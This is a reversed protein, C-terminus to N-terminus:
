IEKRIEYYDEESGCLEESLIDIMAPITLWSDATAEMPMEGNAIFLTNFLVFEIEKGDENYLDKGHFLYNELGESKAGVRLYEKLTASPNVETMGYIAKLLSIGTTRVDLSVMPFRRIMAKHIKKEPVEVIFDKYEPVDNMSANESYGLFREPSWIKIYYSNTDTLNGSEDSECESATSDFTVSTATNSAISFFRGDGNDNTLIVLGTALEDVTFSTGTFTLVASAPTTLNLTASTNGLAQKRVWWYISKGIIDKVLNPDSQGSYFEDFYM